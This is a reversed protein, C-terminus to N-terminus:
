RYIRAPPISSDYSPAAGQRKRKRKRDKVKDHRRSVKGPIIINSLIYCRACDQTGEM